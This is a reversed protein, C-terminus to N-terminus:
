KVLERKQILFEASQTLRRAIDEASDNLGKAIQIESLQHCKGCSVTIEAMNVSHTDEPFRVKGIIDCIVQKARCRPCNVVASRM